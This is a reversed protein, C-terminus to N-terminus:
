EKRGSPLTVGIRKLAERLERVCRAGINASRLLTAEGAKVVDDVKHYGDLNLFHLVEPALGLNALPTEAKEKRSIERAIIQDATPIRDVGLLIKIAMDRAMADLNNATEIGADEPHLGTAFGALFAKQLAERMTAEIASSIITNNM